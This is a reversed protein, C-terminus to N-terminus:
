KNAIAIRMTRRTHDPLRLGDCRMPMIGIPPTPPKRSAMPPPPQPGIQVDVSIALPEGDAPSCTDLRGTGGFLSVIALGDWACNAFWRRGGVTVLVDTPVGSFPHAMWIAASGPRLVLAHGDALASLADAAHEPTMGLTVALTDVTPAAGTERFAAYVAARM